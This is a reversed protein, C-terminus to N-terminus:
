TKTTKNFYMQQFISLVNSIMWYFVLGSPFSSCFFLFILPVIYALKAQAPDPQQPSLKQQLIMTAGMLLPLIGIQLLSPPTWPILGFLNFLSTTDPSSLDKIWFALPAHRLEISISFVKYLCFFIPMQVLLPWFGSLPNIHEKKYLLMLAEQMKYKDHEYQQKLLVIKPQLNKMNMMSRHASRAIPFLVLKSLITLVVIALALNGILSNLFQLAYFLPKTLFYFWGFDVALDFKEIGLEVRYKDLHKLDKAGVFLMNTFVIENSNESTQQALNKPREKLQCYQINNKEFIKVGLGVNGNLAFATLWYKNTFGAWGNLEDMNRIQVDTRKNASLKNSAIEILNGEIYAIGGEHVSSASKQEPMSKRIMECVVEINFHKNQQNSKDYVKDTIFIMFFKDISFTREFVLGSSNTWTLTVPTTPTLIDGTLVDWMTDKQPLEIIQNKTVNSQSFRVHARYEDPSLLIVPPSDAATTQQYRVLSIDDIAAGKLNISGEINGTKIRVRPDAKLAEERSRHEDSNTSVHEIQINELEQSNPVNDDVHKTTLYNFGFLIVFCIGFAVFANKVESM